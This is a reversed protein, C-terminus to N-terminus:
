GSKTQNYPTVRSLRVAMYAGFIMMDFRYIVYMSLFFRQILSINTYYRFKNIRSVTTALKNSKRQGLRNM